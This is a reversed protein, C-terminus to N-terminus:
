LCLVTEPFICMNVYMSFKTDMESASKPVGHFGKVTETERGM